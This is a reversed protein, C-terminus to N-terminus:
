LSQITKIIIQPIISDRMQRKLNRESENRGSFLSKNKVTNDSICFLACAKINSLECCKFLASTEMEITQCNLDIFHQLHPFQAFITDVSYNVAFHSKYEPFTSKIVSMLKNNLSEDPYYKFEFDDKLNDNLYRCAGVGNYSYLPIVLDGVNINENLSGASGIFFIQKCSTLSLPLIAELIVPAGINKLEIFTFQFDKGYVNYVKESKKEIKEAFKEFIASSWWPAVVVNELIEYYENRKIIDEKTTGYKFHSNMLNNM